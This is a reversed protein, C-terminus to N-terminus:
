KELAVFLFAYWSAKDKEVGAIIIQQLEKLSTGSLSLMVFQLFFETDNSAELADAAAKAAESITRLSKGFRTRERENLDTKFKPENSM